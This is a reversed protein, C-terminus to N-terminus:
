GCVSKKEILKILKVLRKEDIDEVSNIKIHRMTKGTGEFFGREDANLGTIAFGVHVRTKMAALYFKGGTFTIVGWMMKEDCIPLTEYFIERVKRLIEKQPSKQKSIYEDVHKDM